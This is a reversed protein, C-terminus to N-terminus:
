EVLVTSNSNLSVFVFILAKVIARKAREFFCDVCVLGFCDKFDTVCGLGYYMFFIRKDVRFKESQRTIRFVVTM